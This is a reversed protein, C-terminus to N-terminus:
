RPVLRDANGGLVAALMNDALGMERLWDMHSGLTLGVNPADTGLLLRDGYEVVDNASLGPREYVVPTLDAWLNAHKGMLDLTERHGHHGCHAVILTTAPHRQAAAAITALEHSHTHGTVDHGVHVVVPMALEGAAAYVDDLREDDADYGGVSCHLKVVRAGATDYARRITDGPADDGIHATCGTVIDVPHDAAQEAVEAMSENLKDAMGPKHAYPLNWVAAVGDAHHRDLVEVVDNPYVLMDGIHDEFFRRIARALAAPMLHVHSDVITQSM